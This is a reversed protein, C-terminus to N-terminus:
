QVHRAKPRARVQPDEYLRGYYRVPKFDKTTRVRLLGANAHPSSVRRYVDQLHTCMTHRVLHHHAGMYLLGM